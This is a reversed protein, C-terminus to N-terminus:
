ELSIMGKRNCGRARLGYPGSASAEPLCKKASAESQDAGMAKPHTAVKLFPMVM